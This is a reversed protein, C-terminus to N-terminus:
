TTRSLWTYDITDNVTVRQLFSCILLLGLMNFFEKVLHHCLRIGSMPKWHMRSSSFVLIFIFFVDGTSRLRCSEFKIESGRDVVVLWSNQDEIFESGALCYNWCTCGGKRACVRMSVPDTGVWKWPDTIKVTTPLDRQEWQATPTENLQSFLTWKQEPKHHNAWCVVDVRKPDKLVQMWGDLSFLFIIATLM